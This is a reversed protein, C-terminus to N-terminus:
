QLAKPVPPPKASTSAGDGSAPAAGSGVRVMVSATTGVRLEVHAPLEKISIKVPIRQALRIWEFSPAVAPLLQQSTAGDQQSIGWAISDVAGEIATDPYSMLTVFAADGPKLRGVVSERFYADVWFSNKDVLAMAAAGANAQSGLRLNLNTVFGDVPARQETFELNLRASELNAKASRLQANEDGKAGRKAIATARQAQAQALASETQSLAATSRDLNARDVDYNKKQADYSAVSLNGDKVLREYRELQNKSQVIAAQASRLQAQAQDVSAEAQKVQAEAAEVQKDLSDLQDVTQDYQAKAQALAVKYTRQDIRFLLDGAKVVQNDTIPLDTIPGSVRPTVQIVNARVQGDRTWPNAIYDYYKLAVLLVAVAVVFITLLLRLTKKM